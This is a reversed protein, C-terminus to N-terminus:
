ATKAAAGINAGFVNAGTLDAGTLDAGELDAWRLDAWRLDAKRLDAGRLDASTLVAGCLIAGRMDAQNLRMFALNAYALNRGVLTLRTVRAGKSALWDKHAPLAKKLRDSTMLYSATTRMAESSSSEPMTLSMEEGEEPFPSSAVELGTERHVGTPAEGRRM